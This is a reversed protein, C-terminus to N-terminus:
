AFFYEFEFNQAASFLLKCLKLFLVIFTVFLLIGICFKMEGRFLEEILVLRM